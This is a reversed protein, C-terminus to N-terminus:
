NGLLLIAANVVESIESNEDDGLSSSMYHNYHDLVNSREALYEFRRLVSVLTTTFMMSAFPGVNHKEEPPLPESHLRHPNWNSSYGLIFCM